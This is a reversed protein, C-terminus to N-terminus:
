YDNSIERRSRCRPYKSCGWFAGRRNNVIKMPSGCKTCKPKAISIDVSLDSRVIENSVIHGNQCEGHTVETEVSLSQMCGCQLCMVAASQASEVLPYAENVLISFRRRDYLEIKNESAYTIATRAFRGTNMYFGGEAKEEHMAAVFIQLDRRGISNNEAYRKCEILYKKGDKWAIADKGRDNSFPTGKVEYGLKKFLQVIAREFEQSDMQMYSESNTLRARSLRQVEGQRLARAADAIKNKRAVEDATRKRLEQLQRADAVCDACGGVAGSRIGHRCPKRAESWKRVGGYIWSFILFAVFMAVLAGGVVTGDSVGLYKALADVLLCAGVFAGIAGFFLVYWGVAKLFSFVRV